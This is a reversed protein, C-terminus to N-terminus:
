YRKTSNSSNLAKLMIADNEHKIAANGSAVIKQEPADKELKVIPNDTM